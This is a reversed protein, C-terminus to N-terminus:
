SFQQKMSRLKESVAIAKKEADDLSFLLHDCASIIDDDERPTNIVKRINVQPDHSLARMMRLIAALSYNAFRLTRIIKLKELDDQTYIRYGNQLRKIRMLGNLEWNRLTDITVNLYDAAEKRRLPKTLESENDEGARGELIQHVTNLAEEANRRETQVRALYIDTQQLAADFDGTAATKIIEITMKRLGNQLIEISLLIRALELQEIHLDTFIRYGNSRREPKPILQYEEYLRVTNPHIGIVRAVESTTYTRMFVDDELAKMIAHFSLRTIYHLTPIFSISFYTMHAAAPPWTVLFTNHTGPAQGGFPSSGVM